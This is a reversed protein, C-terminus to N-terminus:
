AATEDTCRVLIPVATTQGSTTYIKMGEKFSINTWVYQTIAIQGLDELTLTITNPSWVFIHKRDNYSLSFPQSASIMVLADVPPRGVLIDHLDDFAQMIAAHQQESCM